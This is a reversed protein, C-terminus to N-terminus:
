EMNMQHHGRIKKVVKKEMMKSVGVGRGSGVARMKFNCCSYKKFSIFYRIM